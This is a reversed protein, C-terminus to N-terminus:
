KADAKAQTGTFEGTVGFPDVEVSGSMKGSDDITGTFKITLPTGNYESEFQWTAKSGDVTGKIELSKDEQNKCTGTLKNDTQVLNCETDTENGAVSQHINWKGTVSPAAAAFASSTFLLAAVALIKKM